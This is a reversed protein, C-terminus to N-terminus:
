SSKLMFDSQGLQNEPHEAHLVIGEIGLMKACKVRLGNESEANGICKFFEAANTLFLEHDVKTPFYKPSNAIEDILEKTYVIHGLVKKSNVKTVGGVSGIYSVLGSQMYAAEAMKDGRMHAREAMEVRSDLEKEASASRSKDFNTTM